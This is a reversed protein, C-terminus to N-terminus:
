NEFDFQSPYKEGSASGVPFWQALMKLEDASLVVNMAAMNQQLYHIKKTGPIPVIDHLRRNLRPLQHAQKIKTHSFLSHINDQKDL